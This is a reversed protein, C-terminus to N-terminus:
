KSCFHLENVPCIQRLLSTTVACYQFSITRHRCYLKEPDGPSRGIDKKAGCWVWLFSTPVPVIRKLCRCVDRIFRLSECWNFIRPEIANLDLAKLNFKSHWGRLGGIPGYFADQWWMWRFGGEGVSRKFQVQDSRYTIHCNRSATTCM